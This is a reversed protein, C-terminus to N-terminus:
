VVERNNWLKEYIDINSDFLSSKYFNELGINNYVVEVKALGKFLKAISFIKKEFKIYEEDGITHFDNDLALIVKNVGMKVLQNRRNLGLQSGFLALVNNERGLLSDAKLVSKEGEVLIVSKTREITEWNYNIGFFVCNTNFRYDNGNLLILPIYKACNVKEPELNRCRIGILNGDRDRCPIVIQNLRSYWKIQYKQLTEVEIGEDLWGKYYVNDLQEIINDNYVKLVNEGKKIKVFKEIDSQWNCVTNNTKRVIKDIKLHIIDTIFKISDMFSSPQKLLFLRKQVLNIVDMTLGSSYGVYTKTDLYFYLKPSGMLPNINKEGSWYIIHNNNETFIPIGLAKVITKHDVITLQAKLLKININDNGM